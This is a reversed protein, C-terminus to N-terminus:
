FKNQHLSQNHLLSNARQIILDFGIYLFLKVSSSILTRLEKMGQNHIWWWWSIQGGKLHKNYRKLKKWQLILHDMIGICTKASLEGTDSSCWTTPALSSDNALSHDGTPLFYCQLFRYSIKKSRYWVPISQQLVAKGPSIILLQDLVLLLALYACYCVTRHSTWIDSPRRCTKNWGSNHEMSSCSCKEQM